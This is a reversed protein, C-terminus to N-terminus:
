RSVVQVGGPCVCRVTGLYLGSSCRRLSCTLRCRGRTCSIARQTSASCSAFQIMGRYMGEITPYQRLSVCREECMVLGYSFVFVLLCLLGGATGTLDMKPTDPNLCLPSGERCHSSFTSPQFGPPGSKAGGDGQM